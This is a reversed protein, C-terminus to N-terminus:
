RPWPIDAISPKEPPFYCIKKSYFNCTEHARQICCWIGDKDKYFYQRRRNEELKLKENIKRFTADLDFKDM